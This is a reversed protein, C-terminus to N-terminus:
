KPGVLESVSAVTAAQNGNQDVLRTPSHNDVFHPVGNLLVVLRARHNEVAVLSTGDELRVVHTGTAWEEPRFIEVVTAAKNGEQDILREPAENNVFHLQGDLRVVLRDKDSHLTVMDRADALRVVYM